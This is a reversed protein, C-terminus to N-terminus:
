GLPDALFQSAPLIAGHLKAREMDAAPPIAWLDFDGIV